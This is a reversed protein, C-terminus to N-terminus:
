SEGGKLEARTVGLLKYSVAAFLALVVCYFRHVDSFICVICMLSSWLLLMASFTVQCWLFIRRFM